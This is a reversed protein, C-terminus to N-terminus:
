AGRAASFMQKPLEFRRIVGANKPGRRVLILTSGDVFVPAWEPDALRRLLFPQAWPTQDRRYFFIANFRYRADAERWAREDSQLPV